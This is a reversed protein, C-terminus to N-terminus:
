AFVWLGLKIVLLVVVVCVALAVVAGAINGVVRRVKADLTEPKEEVGFISALTPPKPTPSDKM